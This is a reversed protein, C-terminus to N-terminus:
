DIEEEDDEQCVGDFQRDPAEMVPELEVGRILKGKLVGSPTAKTDIKTVALLDSGRVIMDGVKVQGESAQLERSITRGSGNNMVRCRVTYPRVEEVESRPFASVENTGKMELVINGKSDNTLFTGFRGDTTQYLKATMIETEQKPKPMFARYPRRQTGYREGGRDSTYHTEVVWGVKPNRSRKVSIVEQYATGTKLVVLDGVEFPADEM